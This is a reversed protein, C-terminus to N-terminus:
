ESKSKLIGMLVKLVTLALEPHDELFSEIHAFVEDDKKTPTFEVFAKLLQLIM